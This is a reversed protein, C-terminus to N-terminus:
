EGKTFYINKGCHPCIISQNQVVTEDYKPAIYGHIQSYSVNRLNVQNGWNGDIVCIKNDNAEVVIGIHDPGDYKTANWDWLILHGSQPIYTRSYPIWIGLEKAKNRMLTCSCECPIIDTCNALVAMASVFIACWPDSTSPKYGRPLPDIRNYIKLIEKHEASGEKTGIYVEAVEILASSKNM